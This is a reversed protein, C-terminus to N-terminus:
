VSYKRQFVNCSESISLFKYLKTFSSVTAGKEKWFTDLYNFDDTKLLETRGALPGILLGNSVVVTEGPNVGIDLPSLNINKM